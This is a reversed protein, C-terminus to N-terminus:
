ETGEVEVNCGDYERDEDWRWVRRLVKYFTTEAFQIEDGVHPVHAVMKNAINKGNLFVHLLIM